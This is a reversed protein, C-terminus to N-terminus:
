TPTSGLCLQHRVHMGRHHIERKQSTEKNRVRDDAASPVWSQRYRVSAVTRCCIGTIMQNDRKM